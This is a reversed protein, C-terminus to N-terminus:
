RIPPTRPNNVLFQDYSGLIARRTELDLPILGAKTSAADLAVVNAAMTRFEGVVNGQQDFTFSIGQGGRDNLLDFDYTLTQGDGQPFFVAYTGAETLLAFGANGADDLVDITNAGDVLQRDNTFSWATGNQDFTDDATGFWTRVQTGSLLGIEDAEAFVFRILLFDDLDLSPTDMTLSLAPQGSNRGFGAAFTGVSETSTGNGNTLFVDGTFGLDNNDDPQESILTYFTADGQNDYGYVAGFLVGKQVDFSFGWGTLEPNWYIGQIESHFAYIQGHVPSCSLLAFLALATINKM